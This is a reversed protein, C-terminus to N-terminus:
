KQGNECNRHLIRRFTVHHNNKAVLISHLDGNQLFIHKCFHDMIYMSGLNTLDAVVKKRDQMQSRNAACLGSSFFATVPKLNLGARPLNLL